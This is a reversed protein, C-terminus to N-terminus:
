GIGGFRARVAAQQAPLPGHLRHAHATLHTEAEAFLRAYLRRCLGYAATGVWARPLLAPPLLPDQLHIKRYEHILLTRVLFATAASLGRAAVPELPAFRALFRAYRRALEDLDWGQAALRRDAALGDSISQLLLTQRAAGLQRLWRRVQTASVGPHALVLPQLQGFGLWTLEARLTASGAGPALLLLTWRGDWERPAAGYIRRTAEAFRAAGRRTLRYESRRGSRRAALWGDRALRAVSTRVLRETLGFPAALRILSGLTVAGGRPAIADGFLTILLSGARLPRQARFHRLLARAPAPLAAPPAAPM